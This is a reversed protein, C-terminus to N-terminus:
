ASSDVHLNYFLMGEEQSTKTDQFGRRRMSGQERRYERKPAEYDDELSTRSSEYGAKRSQMRELFSSGSSAESSASGTDYTGRALPEHARSTSGHSPRQTWSRTEQSSPNTVPPRESRTTYPPDPLPASRDRNARSEMIRSAPGTPLGNLRSRSSM